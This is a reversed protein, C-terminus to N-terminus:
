VFHMSFTTRVGIYMGGGYIYGNQTDVGGWYHGNNTFNATGKFTLTNNISTYITPSTALEM